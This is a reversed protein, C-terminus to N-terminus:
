HLTVCPFSVSFLLFLIVFQPWILSASQFSAIQPYFKTTHIKKKKQTNFANESCFISTLFAPLFFTAMVSLMQQWLFNSLCHNWSNTMTQDGQSQSNLLMTKDNLDSIISWVHQSSAPSAGPVDSVSIVCTECGWDPSGWREISWTLCFYYYEAVRTRIHCVPYVRIKTAKLGWSLHLAFVFGLTM